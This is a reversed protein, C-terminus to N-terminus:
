SFSSVGQSFGALFGIPIMAYPSPREIINAAPEGDAAKRRRSFAIVPAIFLLAVAVTKKVLAPKVMANAYSGIASAIAGIGGLTGTTQLDVHDSTLFYAGAGSAASVTTAALVTGTVLATRMGSFRSYLIPLAVVSGALGTHVCFIGVITGTGAMCKMNVAGNSGDLSARSNMYRRRPFTSWRAYASCREGSNAGLGLRCGGRMPAFSAPASAVGRFSRLVFAAM